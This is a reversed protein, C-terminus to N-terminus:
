KTTEELEHQKKNLAFSAQIGVHLPVDDVHELEYGDPCHEKYHEHKWDSELGMDHRFWWDNSSLHGALVTGDECIACGNVWETGRGSNIFVYIKKM